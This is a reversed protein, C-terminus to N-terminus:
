ALRVGAAPAYWDHRRAARFLTEPPAFGPDAFCGASVAVAGPLGEGEMFVLGGCAPCFTQEVWRGADGVRRWTRRDGAIEVVADWAFVARYSLISGTARQCELCACAYVRAPAGSVQIRLQGCACTATRDTTGPREM